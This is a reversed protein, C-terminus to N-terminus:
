LNPGALELEDTHAIKKRGPLSWVRFTRARALSMQPADHSDCSQYGASWRTPALRILDRRWNLIQELIGKCSIMNLKDYVGPRKPYQGTSRKLKFAAFPWVNRRFSLIDAFSLISTKGELIYASQKSAIHVVVINCSLWQLSYDFLWKKRM